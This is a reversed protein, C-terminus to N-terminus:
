KRKKKRNKTSNKTLEGYLTAKGKGRYQKYSFAAFGVLPLTILFWFFSFGYGEVFTLGDPMGPYGITQGRNYFEYNQHELLHGWHLLFVMILSVVTILFFARINPTYRKRVSIMTLIFLHVVVLLVFIIIGTTTANGRLGVFYHELMNRHIQLYDVVVFRYYNTVFGVITVVLSALVIYEIRIHQLKNQLKKM